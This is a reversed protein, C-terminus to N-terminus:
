PLKQPLYCDNLVNDNERINENRKPTPTHPLMHVIITPMTTPPVCDRCLDHFNKKELTTALAKTQQVM